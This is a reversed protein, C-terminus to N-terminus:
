LLNRRRFSEKKPLNTEHPFKKEAEDLDRVSKEGENEMKEEHEQRVACRRAELLTTQAEALIDAPLKSDNKIFDALRDILYVKTEQQSPKRSMIYNIDEQLMEKFDDRVIDANFFRREISIEQRHERMVTFLKELLDPSCAVGFLTTARHFTESSFIEVAFVQGKMLEVLRAIRRRREKEDPQRLTYGEEDFLHWFEQQGFPIFAAIEKPTEKQFIYIKNGNLDKYSIEAKKELVRNTRLVKFEPLQYKSLERESELIDLAIDAETKGIQPALQRIKDHIQDRERDLYNMVLGSERNRDAKRAENWVSRYHDILSYYTQELSEM